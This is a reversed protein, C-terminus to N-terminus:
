WEPEIISAESPPDNRTPKLQQSVAKTPKETGPEWPKGLQSDPIARPQLDFVKEPMGCWVHGPKGMTAHDKSKVVELRVRNEKTNPKWVMLLHDAANMWHASGELEYGNPPRHIDMMKTVHHGVILILNHRQSLIKMRRICDGIVDTKTAGRPISNIIQNWPDVCVVSSGMKAQREISWLLWEFDPVEGRPPSMGRFTDAIWQERARQEFGERLHTPDMKGLWFRRMRKTVIGPDGEAHFLSVKLGNAWALNFTLAQIVTSKGAGAQGGVVIFSPRVPRFHDGLCPIGCPLPDMKPMNAVHELWPLSGDDGAPTAEDIIKRLQDEGYRTVVENADKTDSPYDVTWSYDKGLLEILVDRMLLGDRDGDTMIVVKNFKAIDQKLTPKGDDGPVTLCRIAKSKCGEIRNAVGSPLSVVFGLGLQKVAIRDKEGETIILAADKPPDEALEEEGWLRNQDVGSPSCRMSSKDGPVETKAYLLSGDQGHYPFAIRDGRSHVGLRTATEVCLKRSELWEVHETRISM